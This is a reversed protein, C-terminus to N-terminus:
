SIHDVVVLSSRSLREKGEGRRFYATIREVEIKKMRLNGARTSAHERTRFALAKTTLMVGPRREKYKCTPTPLIVPPVNWLPDPTGLFLLVTLETEVVTCALAM